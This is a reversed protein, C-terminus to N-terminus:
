KLKLTNKTESFCDYVRENIITLMKMRYEVERGKRKIYNM